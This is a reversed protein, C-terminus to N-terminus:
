AALAHFLAPYLQRAIYSHGQQSSAPVLTNMGRGDWWIVPGTSGPKRSAVGRMYSTVPAQSV